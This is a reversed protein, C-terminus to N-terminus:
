EILGKTEIKKMESKLIDSIIENNDSLLCVENVLLPSINPLVVMNLEARNGHITAIVVKAEQNYELLKEVLEKVKM